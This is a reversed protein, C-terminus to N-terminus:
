RRAAWNFLKLWDSDSGRLATSPKLWDSNNGCLTTSPKM